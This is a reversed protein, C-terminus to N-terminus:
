IFDEGFKNKVVLSIDKIEQEQERPFILLVDEKEIVIYDNLGQIVVHKGLQTKVMNGSSDKYIVEAGLTANDNKDKKLKQHLSNWTGLDDWGFDVPLVCVNTAKEMIGFDISINESKPYNDEIFANEKESNYFKNGVSFLAYMEPLHNKFAEIISKASWIFIGANWLYEGSNVFQTATELDPKETFKLVDKFTKKSEDFKIYGYGTNPNSPKIGLTLLTNNKECYQFSSELNKLFEKEKEILHDSPAVVLIGDPNENYIKLASYLICPATNKMAPELLIRNSDIKPLHQQVLEQYNKNTAILINETPILGQLRNFTLQILSKGNGLIDHFQKPLKRTSIPWFRSGIGGAMIVAYYNNKM